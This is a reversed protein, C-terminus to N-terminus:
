RRVRVRYFPPYRIFSADAFTVVIEGATRKVEAVVKWDLSDPLPPVWDGIRLDHSLVDHLTSDEPPALRNM